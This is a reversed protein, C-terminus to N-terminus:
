QIEAVSVFHEQATQWTESTEHTKAAVATGDEKAADDVHDVLLEQSPGTDADTADIVNVDSPVNVGSPDSPVQPASPTTNNTCSVDVEQGSGKSTEADLPGPIASSPVNMDDIPTGGAFDPVGPAEGEELRQAELVELEESMEPEDPEDIEIRASQEPLEALEPHDTWAQESSKSPRKSLSGDSEAPIGGLGSADVEDENGDGLLAEQLPAQATCHDCLKSLGGVLLALVYLTLGIVASFATEGGVFALGFMVPSWLSLVAGLVPVKLAWFWVNVLVWFSLRNAYMQRANSAVCRASELAIGFLLGVTILVSVVSAVELCVALLVIGAVLMAWREQPCLSLLHLSCTPRQLMACVAQRAAELVNGMHEITHSLLSTLLNFLYPALFSGRWFQLWMTLAILLGEAGPKTEDPLRSLSFQIACLLPWCAWYSLLYRMDEELDASPSFTDRWRPMAMRLWGGSNQAQAAEEDAAKEHHHQILARSTWMVPLLTALLFFVIGPVAESSCLSAAFWVTPCVVIFSVHFLVHKASNLFAQSNHRLWSRSKWLLMVAYATGGIGMGCLAVIGRQEWSMSEWMWQLLDFLQLLIPCM